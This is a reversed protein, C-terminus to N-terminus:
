PNFSSFRGGRCLPFTESLFQCALCYINSFQVFCKRSLYKNMKRGMKERFLFLKKLLQSSFCNYPIKEPNYPHDRTIIDRDQYFITTLKITEFPAPSICCIHINSNTTLRKHLLLSVKSKLKLYIPFTLM